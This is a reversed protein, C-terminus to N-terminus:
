RSAIASLEERVEIGCDQLSWIVTLWTRAV